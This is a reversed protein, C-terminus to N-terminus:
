YSSFRVSYDARFLGPNDGDTGKIDLTSSETQINFNFSQKLMVDDLLDSIEFVRRSGENVPIYVQMILLGGVQSEGGYQNMLPQSPLIEMVLYEAPMDEIPNFNAAFVKLDNALWEPTNFAKEFESVINTYGSM